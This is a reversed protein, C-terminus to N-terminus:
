EGDTTKNKARGVLANKLHSLPPRIKTCYIMSSKLRWYHPRLPSGWYRPANAALARPYDYGDGTATKTDQHFTACSLTEEIDKFDFHRGIRVWLDFDMILHQEEDLLGVKEMAERRWFISSQHMQYGEWFRLLRQYSEYQGYIPLPPRGDPYVALCRGVLAFNGTGAALNRAVTQLADPLYFDDSNLWAIVEGSARELGKNIAHSQGRDRESEWHSLWPAYKEIIRASGDDSGGDIVIYELNPYNQLLVSRLTQEVFQAQNYSPTVITIRPWAGGDPLAPPLASTQETWPWGTLGDPPAPLDSLQPCKM